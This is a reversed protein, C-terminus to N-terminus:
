EEKAHITIYNKVFMYKQVCFCHFINDDSSFEENDSYIDIDSEGTFNQINVMGSYLLGEIECVSCRFEDNWPQLMSNTVYNEPYLRDREPLGYLASLGNFVRRTSPVLLCIEGCSDEVCFSPVIANSLKNMMIGVIRKPLKDPIDTSTSQFVSLYPPKDVDTDNNNDICSHFDVFRNVMRTEQGTNGHGRPLRSTHIHELDPAFVVLVAANCTNRSQGPWPADMFMRLDSQSGYIPLRSMKQRLLSMDPYNATSVGFYTCERYKENLAMYAAYGDAYLEEIPCSSWDSRYPGSFSLSHIKRIGIDNELKEPHLIDIPFLKIIGGIYSAQWALMYRTVEDKDPAQTCLGWWYTSLRSYLLCEMINAAGIYRLRRIGAHAANLYEWDSPGLISAKDIIDGTECPSVKHVIDHLQDLTYRSASINSYVGPVYGPPTSFWKSGKEEPTTNKNNNCTTIYPMRSLTCALEDRNLSYLM